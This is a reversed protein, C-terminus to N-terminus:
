FFRGTTKTYTINQIIGDIIRPINEKVSCKFVIKKCLNRVNNKLLLIIHNKEFANIKILIIIQVHYSQSHPVLTEVSEILVVMSFVMSIENKQKKSKIDDNV